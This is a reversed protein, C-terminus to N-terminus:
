GPRKASQNTAPKLKNMVVTLLLMRKMKLKIALVGLKIPLLSNNNGRPDVSKAGRWFGQLRYRLDAAVWALSANDASDLMKYTVRLGDRPLPSKGLSKAISSLVCTSNTDLMSNCLKIAARFWFYQLPQHGCGKLIVWNTATQKVSLSGKFTSVRGVRRLVHNWSTSINVENFQFEARVGCGYSTCVKIHRCEQPDLPQEKPKQKHDAAAYHQSQRNNFTQFELRLSENQEREQQQVQRREGGVM